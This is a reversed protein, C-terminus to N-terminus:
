PNLVASYGGSASFAAEGKVAQAQAAGGSLFLSAAVLCLRVVWARARLQSWFGAAAIRAM